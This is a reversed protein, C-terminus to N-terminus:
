DARQTEPGLFRCVVAHFILIPKGTGQAQSDLFELLSSAVRLLVHNGKTKRRSVPLLNFRAAWDCHARKQTNRNGKCNWNLMKNTTQSRIRLEIRLTLTTIIPSRRLSIRWFFFIDWPSM